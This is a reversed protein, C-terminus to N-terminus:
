ARMESGIWFASDRIVVDVLCDNNIIQKGPSLNIADGMINLASGGIISEIGDVYISKGAGIVSCDETKEIIEM